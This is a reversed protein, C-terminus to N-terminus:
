PFLFFILYPKVIHTDISLYWIFVQSSKCSLTDMQLLLKWPNNEFREIKYSAFPFLLFRNTGNQSTELTETWIFLKTRM